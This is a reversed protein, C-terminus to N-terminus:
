PRYGVRFTTRTDAGAFPALGTLAGPLGRAKGVVCTDIACHIFAVDDPLAWKDRKRQDFTPQRGWYPGLKDTVTIQDIWSGIVDAM